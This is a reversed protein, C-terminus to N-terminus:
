AGQRPSSAPDPEHDEWFLWLVIAAVVPFWGAVGMGVDYSGTQDILRGFFKHIPSSVLWAFTGLIGSIKGQHKVTLQQSFSYYCPFQGLSGFGILMLVGILMPGPPLFALAASLATLVTCFTFVLTRSLRVSLGRRHLWLSAAGASLCGLDTAVYYLSTLNLADREAYGRGQMLYKPLWVRFVHWCANIAIVVV